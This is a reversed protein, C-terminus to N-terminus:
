LARMPGNASRWKRALGNTSEATGQPKQVGLQRHLVSQDGQQVTPVILITPERQGHEYAHPRRSVDHPLPPHQSLEVLPM